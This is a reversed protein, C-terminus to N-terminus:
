GDVPSTDTGTSRDMRRARGAHDRTQAIVEVARDTFFTRAKAEAESIEEATLDPYYALNGGKALAEAALGVVLPRLRQAARRHRDDRSTM